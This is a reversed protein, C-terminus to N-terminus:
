IPRKKFARNTLIGVIIFLIGFIIAVGVGIVVGMNANHNAVEALEKASDIKKEVKVVEGYVLSIKKGQGDVVGSLNNQREELAALRNNVGVLQNDVYKKDAKGAIKGNLRDVKRTLLGVSEALKEHRILYNEASAPATRVAPESNSVKGNSALILDAKQASTLAAQATVSVAALLVVVLATIYKKM